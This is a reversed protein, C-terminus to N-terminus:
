KELDDLMRILEDDGDNFKKCMGINHNKNNKRKKKKKMDKKVQSYYLM